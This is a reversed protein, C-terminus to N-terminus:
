AERMVEINYEIKTRKHINTHRNRIQKQCNEQDEVDM